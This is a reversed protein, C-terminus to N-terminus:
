ILDNYLAKYDNMFRDADLKLRYNEATDNWNHKNILQKNIVSALDNSDETTFTVGINNKTITDGLSGHNPGIITKRQWVGEGLPGSAGTFIKRYPLVIFDCANICISFEEDSLYKLILKVNNKYTDIKEQIFTKDFFQEQGAIILQFPKDVKILAELLIDLGKDFRTGGLALLVPTKNSLGLYNLAFEKNIDNSDNFHPYEIHKVNKIDLSNLKKMLTETHVIGTNIKKFIRKVSINRFFSNRFQHFTIISKYKKFKSLGIGFYRYFIDGYLFQIIDPKEMIVATEIEKIWKYYQIFNGSRFNSNRIKIQKTTIESINEPICIVFDCKKNSILAKLYSAHHGSVSTDVLLIRM